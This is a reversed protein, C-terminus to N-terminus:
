TLKYLISIINQIKFYILVSFYIFRLYMITINVDSVQGGLGGAMLRYQHVIFTYM